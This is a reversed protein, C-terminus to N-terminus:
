SSHNSTSPPSSDPPQELIGAPISAVAEEVDVILPSDGDGLNGDGCFDLNQKIWANSKNDKKNSFYSGATAM